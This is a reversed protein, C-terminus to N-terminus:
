TKCIFLYILYWKKTNPDAPYGSGFTTSIDIEGEIFKWDRIM